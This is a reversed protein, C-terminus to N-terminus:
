PRDSGLPSGPQIDLRLASLCRLWLNRGDRLALQAPHQRQKGFRDLITLGDRALIKKAAQVEDWASLAENLLMVGAPDDISYADIISKWLTKAESSLSKPPKPRGKGTM